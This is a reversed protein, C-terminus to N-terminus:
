CSNRLTERQAESATIAEKFLHATRGLSPEWLNLSPTSLCPPSLTLHSPCPPLTITYPISSFSLSPTRSVPSLIFSLCLLSHPLPSVPPLCFDGWHSHIIVHHNQVSSVRTGKDCRQFWACQSTSYSIFLLCAQALRAFASHPSCPRSGLLLECLPEEWPKNNNNFNKKYSSKPAQASNWGSRSNYDTIQIDQIFSQSRNTLLQINIM